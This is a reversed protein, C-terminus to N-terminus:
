KLKQFAICFQIYSKRIVAQDQMEGCDDITHSTKGCIACPRTTDFARKLKSGISMINNDYIKKAHSCTKYALANLDCDSYSISMLSHFSVFKPIPVLVVIIMNLPVM